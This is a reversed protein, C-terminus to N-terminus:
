FTHKFCVVELNHQYLEIFQTAQWTCTALGKHRIVM